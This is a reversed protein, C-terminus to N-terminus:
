PAELLAGAGGFGAPILREFVGLGSQRRGREAFVISNGVIESLFVIAEGQRNYGLQVLSGEPLEAVGLGSVGGLTLYYGEWLLPELTRAWSADRLLYGRRRFRWRNHLNTGPLLVIPTAGSRSRPQYLVLAQAPVQEERGPLPRTTRYLGEPLEM